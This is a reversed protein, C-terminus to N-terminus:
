IAFLTAFSAFCFRYFCCCAFDHLYCLFASKGKAGRPLMATSISLLHCRLLTFYANWIFIYMCVAKACIYTYVATYTFHQTHWQCAAPVLPLLDRCCCIIGWILNIIWRQCSVFFTSKLTHCCSVCVYMYYIFMPTYITTQISALTLCSM